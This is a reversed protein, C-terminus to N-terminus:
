RQALWVAPRVDMAIHSILADFSSDHRELNQALQVALMAAEVAFRRLQQAPVAALFAPYDILAQEVFAADAAKVANRFDSPICKATM